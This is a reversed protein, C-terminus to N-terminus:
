VVLTDELSRFLVLYTAIFIFLHSQKRIKYFAIGSNSSVMVEDGFLFAVDICCDFENVKSVLECNFVTLHVM